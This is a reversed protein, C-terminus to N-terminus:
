KEADDEDDFEIEDYKEMFLVGVTLPGCNCSITASAQQEWLTQFTVHKYIERQVQSLIEHGCGVYTLFVTDTRINKHEKFLDAVYRGLVKKYDGIYVRKFTLYGNKMGLVPHLHLYKCINMSMKGVKGNYYLYDANNALFTTCIHPIAAELQRVIQTSSLGQQRYKLAELVLIGLGTSLHCSDVLHVRHGDMGLKARGLKAHELAVSIEGGICIHVIEDCEELNKAFFNKYENASPVVSQAKKKGNAMYEILNQAGVEDTDRFLGRETEVDFYIMEVNKNLLLEKPLDAVCETTIMIEHM